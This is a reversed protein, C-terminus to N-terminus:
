IGKRMIPNQAQLPSQKKAGVKARARRLLESEIRQIQKEIEGAGRFTTSNGNHSVSVEPANQNEVLIALQEQLQQTTYSQFRFSM